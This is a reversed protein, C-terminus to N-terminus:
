IPRWCGQIMLVALAVRAVTMTARYPIPCIRNMSRIASNVCVTIDMFAKKQNASMDVAVM